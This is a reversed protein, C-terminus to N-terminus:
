RRDWDALTEQAVRSGLLLLREFIDMAHSKTTPDVSHTYVTLPLQVLDHELLAHSTRIDVVENGATDLIQTTVRLALDHEDAALTKIYKILHEAGALLAPSALFEEIFRRLHDLHEPHLHEFCEGVHSRVQEDADNM